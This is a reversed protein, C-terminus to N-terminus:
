IGHLNDDDRHNTKTKEEIVTGKPFYISKIRYNLLPLLYGVQVIEGEQILINLQRWYDDVDFRVPNIIEMVKLSLDVGKLGQNSNVIHIIAQRYENM